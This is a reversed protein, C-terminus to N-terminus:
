SREVFLFNSVPLDSSLLRDQFLFPRSSLGVPSQLDQVAAFGQVLLGVSREPFVETLLVQLVKRRRKWSSKLNRPRSREEDEDDDEFRAVFRM